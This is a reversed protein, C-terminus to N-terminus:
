LFKKDQEAIGLRGQMGPSRGTPLTEHGHLLQLDHPEEAGVEVVKPQHCEAGPEVLCQESLRLCPNTLLAASPAGTTVCANAVNRYSAVFPNKSWETKVLSGQTDWDDANWLSSYIRMTQNKPYAVGRTENNRFDRIPILIHQQNWLISYTHFDKTPDFWLKVQTARGRPSCGPSSSHQLLATRAVRPGQVVLSMEEKVM